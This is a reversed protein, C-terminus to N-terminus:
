RKYQILSIALLVFCPLNRCTRIGYTGLSSESISQSMRFNVLQPMPRWSMAKELSLSGFLCIGGDFIM